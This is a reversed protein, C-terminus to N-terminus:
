AYKLMNAMWKKSLTSCQFLRLKQENKPPLTPLEGSKPPSPVKWPLAVFQEGSPTSQV